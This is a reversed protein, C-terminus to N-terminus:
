EVASEATGEWAAWAVGDCMWCGNDHYSMELLIKRALTNVIDEDYVNVTVSQLPHPVDIDRDGTANRLAPPHLQADCGTNTRGTSLGSTSPQTNSASAILARLLLESSALVVSIEVPSNVTLEQLMRFSLHTTFATYLTMPQSSLPSTLSKIHHPRALHWTSPATETKFSDIAGTDFMYHLPLTPKWIADSVADEGVSDQVNPICLTKLKPLQAVVQGLVVQDIKLRPPHGFVSMRGTLRLHVVCAGMRPYGTVFWLFPELSTGPECVRVISRFTRLYSLAIPRTHRCINTCSVVNTPLVCLTRYSRAATRAM